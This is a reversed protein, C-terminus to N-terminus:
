AKFISQFADMLNGILVEGSKPANANLRNAIKTKCRFVSFRFIGFKAKSKTKRLKENEVMAQVIPLKINM